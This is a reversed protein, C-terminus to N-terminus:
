IKLKSDIEKAFMFFSYLPITLIGNTEDYGYYNESVKVFTKCSNHNKFNETSGLIGRKKKVDIPTIQGNVKTIFEFEYDNKGKWYFLDINYSALECAIYNEFFVGMNTNIPKIFDVMNIDSQYALFGTDLFYLRYNSGKDEKFPLTVHEKLCKNIYIVGGLKLLEMPNIYDRTKAGEDFLSPKFDTHPRNIEIYINNFLKRTKLITEASVDYLDIDNLYDNYITTLNKRSSVHSKTQLFIDINEPLSGVLLYNKLQEIALNHSFTDLPVKNNYAEVIKDYLMKNSNILFEEFNMPFLTLEDVSGVPYFFKEKKKKSARKIKIRVLSGSAIVPIQSYNDKFDKLSTIAPIAEQIEDLILLTNEDIIRNERLSIHNMIEKANSTPQKYDGEGNIFDRIDDDFKLNIYIYKNKYYTKAFIDRILYTKGVQRAGYVMLPKRKARSNWEVLYSLALRDM